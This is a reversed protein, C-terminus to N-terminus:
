IKFHTFALVQPHHKTSYCTLLHVTYQKVLIVCDHTTTSLFDNGKIYTFVAYCFICLRQIVCVCKAMHINLEDYKTKTHERCTDM